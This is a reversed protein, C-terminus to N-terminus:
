SGVAGQGAPSAASEDRFAASHLARYSLACVVGFACLAAEIGLTRPVGIQEALQGTIWGGIPTTGALLLQYISLVRGRLDDPVHLQISTNITTTFTIAAMGLLVLFVCTLAFWPSAAVGAFAAVFGLMAVLFM